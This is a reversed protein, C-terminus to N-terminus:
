KKEEKVVKVSKIVVDKTPVNEHGGATGTEVAKIKEVVDMGEIVRGFVCYGVGDRAKAKDLFTNDKVNVYFQSTASDAVNTRAMSLTGKLNSLGNASENKIPERTKKEKMGPEFGGGQIMFDSIVRHFITGDYHKDEVYQLFNKVTVPAKDEFLEVKFTGHSTEIAVVPNAARVTGTVAAFAVGCLVLM